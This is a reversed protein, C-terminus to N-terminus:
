PFIPVYGENMNERINLITVDNQIVDNYRPMIPISDLQIPRSDDVLIPSVDSTSNFAGLVFTYLIQCNPNQSTLFDEYPCLRTDNWLGFLQRHRNRLVKGVHNNANSVIGILMRPVTRKTAQSPLLKWSSLSTEINSSGDTPMVKYVILGQYLLLVLVLLGITGFRKFRRMHFFNCLDLLSFTLSEVNLQKRM